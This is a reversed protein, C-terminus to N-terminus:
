RDIPKALMTFAPSFIINAAEAATKSYYIDAHPRSVIGLACKNARVCDLMTSMTLIHGKVAASNIADYHRSVGETIVAIRSHSMKDLEDVPVLSPVLKTDVPMTFDDELMAKIGEAEQKSAANAPDYVIALTVTGTIRDVLLPLTNVGVALDSKGTAAGAPFAFALVSLLAVGSKM